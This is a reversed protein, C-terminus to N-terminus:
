SSYKGVMEEIAEAYDKGEQKVIYDIEAKEKADSTFLYYSFPDVALRAVGRGYPTDMFIESYKPRNSKVSKLLQMGFDSLDILKEEKAKEFDGSELYFKFASNAMIVDGVSGFQKIDLISQSIISFSGGYKRARRYGEEIIEQLAGRGEKLFQWAEDFIILRRRSRDSLYLDQTVANIVQLTIVKFLEKIPKLHELELVVFEDASIDFNSRGCFWKGYSGKSTFDRINHALIYALQTFLRKDGSNDKIGEDAYKPYTILYEHILDVDADNGAQRWAWRAASKLITMETEANAFPVTDTASYVMTHLLAVIPPMDSEPDNKDIFTFPNMCLNSDPRFDLFRGKFVETQKKYSGGIDIIRIMANAAYYNLTIYNVLFSKGAGSSAAIFLNHNNAAKGFLDLRCPQGKRGMFLLYPYGGGSFDAQVPLLTAVSSAPAIFDRDLNEVNDKVNYLGFPLSAILLPPLIGKDEQMVYGNQEWLRKMRVISEAAQKQDESWVWMTPMIKVFPLGKEIDDVAKMYEDKKRMLSPTFSGAGQQQLVLNCKMHLKMKLDEYVVNLSYLFPTLVQNSDSIVGWIGGFCENTQFADVERPFTKVTACRFYRKGIKIEALSKKIATDSFIVQKNLYEEENYTKNNVSPQDNFLKRMWDVLDEPGLDQPHVGAGSLIERVTSYLDTVNIKEAEKEPIKLAVFLRYNRLPMGQFIDMGKTGKKFYEAFWKASKRLVKNDRTKGAQYLEIEEEIYPDAYLIFQIISGFPIGIRFIGELIFTTKDGAFALPTCEWLFGVTEDVNYYFVKEKDYARWPLYSSFKNHQSIREIDDVTADRDRGLLIDQIKHRFIYTIISLIGTAIIALM